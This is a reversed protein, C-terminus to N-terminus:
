KAAAFVANSNDLEGQLSPKYQELITSLSKNRRIEQMMREATINNAVIFGRGEVGEKNKKLGTESYLVCAENLEKIRSKEEDSYRYSVTERPSDKGLELWVSIACEMWALTADMNNTGKVSGIATHGSTRAFYKGGAAPGSPFMALAAGGKEMGDLYFQAYSDISVEVMACRKNLFNQYQKFETQNISKDINYMDHYLQLAEIVRSDDLNLSYKNNNFKLFDTANARVLSGRVTLSADFGFLDVFGDDDTDMTMEAATKRFQDFDWKGAKFHEYPNKVGYKKFLNENYVLIPFRTGTLDNYSLAYTKDKITYITKMSELDWYESEQAIKDMPIEELLGQAAWLPAEANGCLVVEAPTGAAVYSSVTSTMQGWSKEIINVKGGYTKEYLANIEQIDSKPPWWILLDIEPDPNERKEFLQETVREPEAPKENKNTGTGKGDGGCAALQLVMVLSLMLMVAKTLFNTQKM